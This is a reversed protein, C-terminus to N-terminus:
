AARSPRMQDAAALGARRGAAAALTATAGSMPDPGMAVVDADGAEILVVRWGAERLLGLERELAARWLVGLADEPAPPTPSVVVVAGPREDLLVDANTASGLAGDVLTAGGVPVPPCLLPVARSAAVGRAVDRTGPGLVVREGTAADVAVTRLAAPWRDVRLAGGVRAVFGDPDGPSREVALAGLRRRVEAPPADPDWRGALAAFLEASGPPATRPPAAALHRLDGRPDAGSALRAGVFSGASTGVVRGASRLDAGADALGALVGLEWAVVREGGAGLVVAVSM